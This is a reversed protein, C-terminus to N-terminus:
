SEIASHGESVEVLIGRKVLEDFLGCIDAEISNLPADFEEALESAIMRITHMGDFRRWIERGTENLSYLEDELSGIGAGLPIILVEGDIERAVVKESPLYITDLQNGM